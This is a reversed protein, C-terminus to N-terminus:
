ECIISDRAPKFVPQPSKRKGKKLVRTVIVEPKTECEDVDYKIMEEDKIFLESWCTEETPEDLTAAVRPHTLLREINRELFILFSQHRNVFKFLTQITPSSPGKGLTGLCACTLIQPLANCLRVFYEVPFISAYDGSCETTVVREFVPSIEFKYLLISLVYKNFLALVTDVYLKEDDSTAWDTLVDRISVEVNNFWIKRENILAETGQLHDILPKPM